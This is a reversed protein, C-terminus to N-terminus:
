KPCLATNVSTLTIIVNFAYLIVSTKENFQLNSKRVFFDLQPIFFVSPCYM